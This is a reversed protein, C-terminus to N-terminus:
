KKCCANYFHEAEQAPNEADTISKGIVIGDPAFAVIENINHQAIKASVFIPLETNGKIMDWREMFVLSDEEEYSQHFLLADVGLNKAEMASQGVSGSDLLDMMVNINNAHATTCTAHIVQNSTGAMVTIWNPQATALVPVITRGRDIIKTDILIDTDPCVQKFQQIVSIGHQYLMITGIEIIDAHIQVAQAVSLAHELNPTDFSIQLKM